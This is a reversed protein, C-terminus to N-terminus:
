NLSKGSSIDLVFNTKIELKNTIAPQAANNKPPTKSLPKGRLTSQMQAQMAKTIDATMSPYKQTLYRTLSALRVFRILVYRRPAQSARPRAPM